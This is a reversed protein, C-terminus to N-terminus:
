EQEKQKLIELLEIARNPTLEMQNTSNGLGDFIKINSSPSFTGGNVVINLTLGSITSSFNSLNFFINTRAVLFITSGRGPSAGVAPTFSSQSNFSSTPSNRVEEWPLAINYRYTNTILANIPKPPISPINFSNLIGQGYLQAATLTYFAM